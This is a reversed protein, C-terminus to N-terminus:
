NKDLEIKKDNIRLIKDCISLTKLNHSIIVVTKEKKIKHLENIVIEESEKDLSNTAEDLILIDKDHYFLRALAIKKYEGGSLRIGDKGILTDVGNPLDSVMKNLNTSVLAKSFKIKDILNQDTELTINNIIKDSVVLHDQPLYGIKKFVMGFNKNEKGNILIKGGAPRLLGLILDVLTSKGSGNDGIIGICDYKKIKLNLKNFVSETSNPYKFNINRLEIENIVNFYSEKSFDKHISKDKEFSVLDRFIIDIAFFSYQIMILGASIISISPIVRLSAVAFTGVIPIIEATTEGQSIKLLVFSIIFIVIVLEYLYRPYYLILDSKLENDYVKNVGQRLIKKFYSEKNLIKVEKFGKLGEDVAQYIYNLAETRNKGYRITKPKLTFNHISVIIFIIGLLTLVVYPQIWFIYIIVASFVIIESAIRLSSDLTTVCDGSLERVNKIFESTGRRSFNSYSMFQYSNFLKMQLERRCKLSFRAIAFRVLLAFIFKLFFIFILFFSSLLIINNFNLNELSLYYYLKQFISQNNPDMLFSIYPAILAIGLIDIFTSVLFLIILPLISIFNKDFITLLKNIYRFVNM